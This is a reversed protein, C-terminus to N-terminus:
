KVGMSNQRFDNPLLVSYHNDPFRVVVNYFYGRDPDREEYAERLKSIKLIISNEEAVSAIKEADTNSFFDSLEKKTYM